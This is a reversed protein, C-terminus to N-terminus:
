LKVTPIYKKLESIESLNLFNINNHEGFEKIFEATKFTSHPSDVPREDPKCSSILAPIKYKDYQENNTWFYECSSLDVGCFYIKEYSMKYMADLVVTLSAIHTVQLINDQPTYYGHPQRRYFKEYLFINKFFDPSVINQLYNRSSDLIWNVDKLSEKRERILRKAFHFNRNMKVELHYFDPVVDHLYWNNSTWIDLEKIKKWDSPSLDNISPGSGLFIAENNKKRSLLDNITKHM